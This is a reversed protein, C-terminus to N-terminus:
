KGPRAATLDGYLEPRREMMFYNDGMTGGERAKALGAADLEAFVIKEDM